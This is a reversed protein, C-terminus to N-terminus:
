KFNPKNGMFKPTHQKYSNSCGGGTWPSMASRSPITLVDKDYFDQQNFTEGAYEMIRKVISERSVASFYPINNNMCSNAESRYVGRAHFFGGEFMDVRNSYTPHYILHSWPVENMDSSLSMNDYWGNAKAANFEDVHKNLCNCSQIFANVYIYEDGLKGFGHGGAEHQVIGRFDYPYADASMPCVAIASGDNWMYCIGGYDQTNEILVVLTENINDETVTPAKCAYEFTIAENPAIGAGITYQSGFKANKISNVTGTGSDESMGMVTYVNFYDKYTHYPEVAFFHEIAEDIGELYKGQAIDYADFCDGMFVLNVGEGKSATQNVIYDGDGYAYNYQEVVMKSRYDKDNLLFTITDSRNTAGKELVHVTVTVDTKGTGSTPSVTVWDPQKEISWNFNAPARLTYTQTHGANLTRLLRRSISFDHHAAIRKFDKWGAASQYAVESGEPVELTFNDKAVGYFPSGILSPPTTAQSSISTIGTCGRFANNDILSLEKNLEIGPVTSCNQFAGEGISLLSQPFVLPECLRTNSSFALNNISLLGESFVIKSFRNGSFSMSGIEKLEDPLILEGQFACNIFAQGDVVQLGKPLILLGSLETNQAFAGFGIKKVNEPIVLDGSFNNYMFCQKPIEVLKSPITLKGTFSCYYFCNERGLSELNEPLNLSGSLSLCHSFASSGIRKLSSPLELTTIITENFAREGIEFVDNPIILAGSLSTQDFSNVGIRVVKEPFVYHTLSSKLYFAQNPIEDTEYNTYNIKCAEIKSEKMNVAQLIEMSDRMFFFDGANVKGSIKLNKIKNPNKKDAKILQGLIGPEEMHVVYYQRAEGGHTVLDAEWAVIETDTLKFEYTGEMEKKDITITFKSQMGAVYEFAAEKSFRYTIGNVTIAFLAMQAKVTQPVVVARFGDAGQMMLIGEQAPTGAPTVEGTALNIQASRTTNMALVSKDLADFEGEGFGKGEKLIVNACSLRHTFHLKVKDDSPVVKEAKAWLFDSAAYGDNNLQDKAVEFEYASTSLPTGYPYYAYLDIHTNLDKYYAPTSSQWAGTEEDLTYRINDVQNGEDKLTGPQTNKDTYNVGYLGIQDGGCFGGDNVRSLYQQDIGGDIQIKLAEEPLQIGEDAMDSCSAMLLAGGLFFLHKLKM